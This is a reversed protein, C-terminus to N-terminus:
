KESNLVEDLLHDVCAKVRFSYISQGVMMLVQDRYFQYHGFGIPDQSHGDYPELSGMHNLGDAEIKFITLNLKEQKRNGFLVYDGDVALIVGGMLSSQYHLLTKDKFRCLHGGHSYGDIYYFWLGDEQDLTMAYCDLIGELDMYDDVEFSCLHRGYPDWQMLGARKFTPAQFNGMVGMDGYSSWFQNDRTIKLDTVDEGLTFQNILAGEASLIVTYDYSRYTEDLDNERASLLFNGNPFRRIHKFPIKYGRIAFLRKQVGQDMRYVCYRDILRGQDLSRTLIYLEEEVGFTIDLTKERNPEFEFVAKKFIEL